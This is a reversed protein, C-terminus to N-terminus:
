VGLGAVERLLAGVADGAQHNGNRAAQLAAAARVPLGFLRIFGAADAHDYDSAGFTALEPRYLSNPSTRSLAWANGKFLKMRVSGTVPRMLSAVLADLAEREATWWRGEYVLDAYRPAVQDKLALARRDLTLQELERLAAHLITGGPTEYVGRSKMGVLRDEVIDARGV